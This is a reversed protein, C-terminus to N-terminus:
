KNTKRKWSSYCIWGNQPFTPFIMRTMAKCAMSLLSKLPVSALRPMNTLIGSSTERDVASGMWWWRVGPRSEQTPNPLMQAYSASTAMWAFAFSFGMIKTKQLKNM